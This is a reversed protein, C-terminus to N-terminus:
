GFFEEIKKSDLPTKGFRESPDGSLMIEASQRDFGTFKLYGSQDPSLEKGDSIDRLIDYCKRTHSILANLDSERTFYNELHNQEGYDKTYLVILTLDLDGNLDSDAMILDPRVEIMKNFFAKAESTKGQKLLEETALFLEKTEAKEASFAVACEHVRLGRAEIFPLLLFESLFGYIRKEYANYDSIDIM